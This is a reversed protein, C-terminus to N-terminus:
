RYVVVDAKAAAFGAAYAKAVLAELASGSHSVCDDVTVVNDEVVLEWRDESDEGEARIRGNVTHDFTFHAFREDTTNGQALAGEKLFHQILYEMWEVSEYFKEGNDWEIESGDENPVWQCWLGPQEAPPSNHHYVTDPGSGQGFSGEGKVFYPGNERDMRRTGNFEKLYSVEHENLPPSVKVSGYFDTTYGM